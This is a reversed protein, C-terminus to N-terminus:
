NSPTLTKTTETCPVEELEFEFPEARIPHVDWLLLKEYVDEPLKYVPENNLVVHEVTRGGVHYSLGIKNWIAVSIPNWQNRLGVRIDNMTVQIKM